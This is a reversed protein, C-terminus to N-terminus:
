LDLSRDSRIEDPSVVRLGSLYGQLEELEAVSWESEASDVAGRVRAVESGIFSRLATRGDGLFSAELFNDVTGVAAHARLCKLMYAPVPLLDERYLPGDYHQGVQEQYAGAAGCWRERYELDSSELCLLASSEAGGVVSVPVPELRLRAERTALPLLEELPIDFICVRLQSGPRARATCTALRTGTALGRRINVISVLNFIRCYGDVCGYRFDSLSPMTERASAEDMLSAYGAVSVRGPVPSVSSLQTASLFAAGADPVTPM